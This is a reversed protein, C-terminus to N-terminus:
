HQLLKKLAVAQNYERDKAGYLLILQRHRSIEKLRHLDDHLPKLEEQYRHQFEQWKAADHAFWKRLQSSPALQKAWEDLNLQEKKIGRPWIRDVLVAYSKEPKRHKYFEYAREINISM